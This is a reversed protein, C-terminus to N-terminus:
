GRRYDARRHCACSAIAASHDAVQVAGSGSPRAAASMAPRDGGRAVSVDGRSGLAVVLRPSQIAGDRRRLTADSMRRRRSSWAPEYQSAHRAKRKPTLRLSACAMASMSASPGPKTRRCRLHSVHVRLTSVVDAPARSRRGDYGRSAPRRQSAAGTSAPL